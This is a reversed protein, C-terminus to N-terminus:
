GAAEASVADGLWHTMTREFYIALSEDAEFRFTEENAPRRLHGKM